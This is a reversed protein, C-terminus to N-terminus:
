NQIKNNNLKYEQILKDLLSSDGKYESYEVRDIEEEGRYYIITPVYKVGVTEKIENFDEM